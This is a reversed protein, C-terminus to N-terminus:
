LEISEKDKVFGSLKSVEQSLVPVAGGPEKDWDINKPWVTFDKSIMFDVDLDPDNAETREFIENQLAMHESRSMMRVIYVKSGTFCARVKGYKKKLSDVETQSPGDTGLPYSDPIMDEIKETM